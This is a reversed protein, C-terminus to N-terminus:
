SSAHFYRARHAAWVGGGALVVRRGLAEGAAGGLYGIGMLTALIPPCLFTTASRWLRTTFSLFHTTVEGFLAGTLIVYGAGPHSLLRCVWITLVMLAVDPLVAGLLFAKTNVAMGRKALGAGAVATILLHSYTQM